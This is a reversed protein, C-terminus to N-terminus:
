PDVNLRHIEMSLDDLLTNGDWRTLYNSLKINFFIRILQGRSQQEDLNDISRPTYRTNMTMLSRMKPNMGNFLPIFTKSCRQHCM